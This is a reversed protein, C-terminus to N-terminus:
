SMRRRIFGVLGVAGMGFLGITSPEPVAVPSVSINTFDVTGSGNSNEILGLRFYTETAASVDTGFVTFPVTITGTFTQGSAMQTGNLQLENPSGYDQAYFGSGTNVFIGAQLYTPSNAWTATNISYTWSVDYGAPNLLAAQMAANFNGVTGANGLGASDSAVNGSQFGVNAIAIYNQGGLNVTSAPPSGSFGANAWGDSTGDSFTFDVSQAQAQIAGLGLLAAFTLGKTIKSISITSEISSHSQKM